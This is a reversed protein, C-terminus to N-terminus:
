WPNEFEVVVNQTCVSYNEFLKLPFAMRGNVTLRLFQSNLDESFRLNEAQTWGLIGEGKTQRKVETICKGLVTQLKQMQGM